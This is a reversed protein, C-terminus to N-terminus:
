CISTKEAKVELDIEKSRDILTGTNKKITYIYIMGSRELQVGM